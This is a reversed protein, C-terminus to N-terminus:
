LYMLSSIRIKKKKIDDVYKKCNSVFECQIQLDMYFKSFTDSESVYNRPSIASISLTLHLM